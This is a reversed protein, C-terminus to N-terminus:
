LGNKVEVINLLNKYYVLFTKMGYNLKEPTEGKNKDSSIRGTISRM